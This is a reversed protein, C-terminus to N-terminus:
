NILVISYTAAYARAATKQWLLSVHKVGEQKPHTSLYSHRCKTDTGRDNSCHVFGKHCHTVLSKKKEAILSCLCFGPIKSDRFCCKCLWCSTLSSIIVTETVTYRDSYLSIEFRREYSHYVRLSFIFLFTLVPKPFTVTQAVCCNQFTGSCRSKTEYHYLM